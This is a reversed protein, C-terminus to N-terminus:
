AETRPTYRVTGAGRGIAAALEEASTPRKRHHRGDAGPRRIPKPEPVHHGKKTHAKVFLYSSHRLEEVVAALLEEVNSWGPALRM